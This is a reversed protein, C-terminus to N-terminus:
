ILTSGTGTCIDLAKDGKELGTNDALFYRLRLAKDTSHIAVFRDYIRSFYDYYKQRFRKM